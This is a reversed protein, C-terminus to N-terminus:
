EHNEEELKKNIKSVLFDSLEKNEITSIVDFIFGNTLMQYAQEEEIGRSKLYFLEEEGLQGTTAGHACKVDDSYVELQPRTNIQAKKGIILNKNLQASSSGNCNKEILIKGTFVGHSDDKLVGKYLQGSTTNESKHIINSYIDFHEKNNLLFLGNSTCHAEDNNLKATFNCRSIDGYLPLCFEFFNAHKEVECNTNSIHSVSSKEDIVKILSLNSSQSLECYTEHTRLTKTASENLSKFYELITVKSFDEVSIELREHLSCEKNALNDFIHCIFIPSASLEKKVNLKQVRNLLSLNLHSFVDKSVSAKVETSSSSTLTLGNELNTFDSVIKSNLFVITNKFNSFGPNIDLLIDKLQKSSLQSGGINTIVQPLTKQIQTYKWDEWKKSPLGKEELLETTYKSHEKATASLQEKYAKILDTTAEMFKSEKVKMSLGTM